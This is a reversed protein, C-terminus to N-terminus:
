VHAVYDKLAARFRRLVDRPARSPRATIASVERNVRVADVLGIINSTPIPLDPAVRFDGKLWVRAGSLRWIRHVVPAGTAGRALVVDGRRLPRTPLPAIRIEAGQAIAPAMSSGRVKVWLEAGVSTAAMGLALFESREVSIPRERAAESRM